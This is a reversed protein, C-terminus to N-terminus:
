GIKDLWGGSGDHFALLVLVLGSRAWARQEHFLHFGLSFSAQIEVNGYIKQDRCENKEDGVVGGLMSLMLPTKGYTQFGYFPGGYNANWMMPPEDENGSITGYRQGLGDVSYPKGKADANSLINSYQNFGEDMWGYRTENTGIMMPIWQHYTEHDAAGQNSNIVMPYEMGASPGDQLTLQPFEYPIWLKSYFELAHRTREGAKAFRSAREPLYFMHIPVYGKRPINARTAKWIFENSTAWAFDNVQDAVFHWVTQGKGILGKGFGRENEGIITIESDFKTISEVRKRVFHHWFKKRIRSCEGNRQGVM